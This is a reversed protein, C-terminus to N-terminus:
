IEGIHPWEAKRTILSTSRHKAGICFVTFVNNALTSFLLQFFNIWFCSFFLSGPSTIVLPKKGIKNIAEQSIIYVFLCSKYEIYKFFIEQTFFITRMFAFSFTYFVFNMSSLLHIHTPRPELVTQIQVLTKRM